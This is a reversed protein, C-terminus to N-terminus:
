EQQVTIPDYEVIKPNTIGFREARRRAKEQEEQTYVDVDSEFVSKKAKLRSEIQAKIRAERQAQRSSGGDSSGLAQYM